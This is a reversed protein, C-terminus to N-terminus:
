FINFKLLDELKRGMTLQVQGTKLNFLVSWRTGTVSVQQLLDLADHESLVGNHTSLSQSATKYRWCGADKPDNFDSIIFNTTVQWPDENEMINM